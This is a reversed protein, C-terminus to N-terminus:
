CFRYTICENNELLDQFVEAIEDKFKEAIDPHEEVFEKWAQFEIYVEMEDNTFHKEIIDYFDRGGGLRAEELNVIYAKMGM